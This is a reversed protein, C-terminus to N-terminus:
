SGPLYVSSHEPAIGQSVAMAGTGQLEAVSGPELPGILELWVGASDTRFVISDDEKEGYWSGRKFEGALQNPTWQSRGVFLRVDSVQKPKKMIREILARDFTVYVDGSVQFAPKLVKSARFLVGATQLGVPGGFYAVENSSKNAEIQPFLEQLTVHTPKNVILGVVIDKDVLPLMLVVTKQFLPDQLERRAILFSSQATGNPETRTSRASNQQPSQPAQGHTSAWAGVAFTFLVIALPWRRWM